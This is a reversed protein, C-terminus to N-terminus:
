GRSRLVPGTEWCSRGSCCTAAQSDATSDTCASKSAASCRLSEWREAMDAARCRIHVKICPGGPVPLVVVAMETSWLQTFSCHLGRRAVASPFMATSLMASPRILAPTLTTLTPRGSFTDAARSPAVKSARTLAFCSCSAFCSSSSSFTFRTRCSCCRTSEIDLKDTASSRFRTSLFMMLISLAERTPSSWCLALSSTGRSCGGPVIGTQRPDTKPFSKSSLAAASSSFSSSSTRFLSVSRLLDRVEAAASASSLAM